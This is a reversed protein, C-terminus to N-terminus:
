QELWSALLNLLADQNPEPATQIGAWTLEDVAKGVAASLCFVTMKQCADALGAEKILAVFAIATRPSFLLVADVKGQKFAAITETQLVDAVPASYLIERRVEFGSKELDGALDGAVRSAAIHLLVGSEPKLHQQVLSSLARVDGRASQVSKFGENHAARASVDGVTFVPISRQDHQRVFARVGNASTFLIAQVSELSLHVEDKYAINLIPNLLTKFGMAALQSQLVTADAEPRTILVCRTM